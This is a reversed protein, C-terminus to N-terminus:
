LSIFRTDWASHIGTLTPARREEVSITGGLDRRGVLGHARHLFAFGPNLMGFWRRVLPSNRSSRLGVSGFYALLMAAYKRQHDPPELQM